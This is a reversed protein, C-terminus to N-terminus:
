NTQVRSHVPRVELGTGLSVAIHAVNSGESADSDYMFSSANESNQESSQMQHHVHKQKLMELYRCMMMFTAFYLLHVVTSGGIHHIIGFM